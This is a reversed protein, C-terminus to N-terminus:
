SAAHRALVDVCTQVDPVLQWLDRVEADAFGRAILGDLMGVLDQWIGLTDLLLIPGAQYGLQKLTIVELLEDLTGFGGALTVFADSAAIMRQKREFMTETIVLDQIDSKGVEREMLRRPIVGTVRGGAAMAADAVVGMLGVSGGGYVLRWGAAGVAQGFDRAAGAYALDSGVRSGCFVCVSYPRDAAGSRGSPVADPTV